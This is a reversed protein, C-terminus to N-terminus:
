LFMFLRSSDRSENVTWHFPSIHDIPLRNQAPIVGLALDTKQEDPRVPVIAIAMGGKKVARGRKREERCDSHM